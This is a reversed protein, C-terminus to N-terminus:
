QHINMERLTILYNRVSVIMLLLCVITVAIGLIFAVINLCRAKKGYAAASGPDGVVKRDRSKISFVLAAFSLCCFCYFSLFFLNFLSWLVYDKPQEEALRRADPHLAAPGSRETDAGDYYPQLDLCVADSSM